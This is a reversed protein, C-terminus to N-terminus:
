SVALDKGGSRLTSSCIYFTFLTDLDQRVHAPGLGATVANPIELRREPFLSKPTRFWARVYVSIRLKRCVRSTNIPPSHVCFAFYVFDFRQTMLRLAGVAKRPVWGRGTNLSILQLSRPPQSSRPRLWSEGGPISGREGRLWQAARTAARVFHICFMRENRVLVNKMKM